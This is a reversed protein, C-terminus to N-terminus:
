VGFAVQVELGTPARDREGCEVGTLLVPICCCRQGHRAELPASEMLMQEFSNRLMSGLPMAQFFGAGIVFLQTVIAGDCLRSGSNQGFYQQASM